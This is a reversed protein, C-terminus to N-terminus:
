TVATAAHSRASAPMSARAHPAVTGGHADPAAAAAETAATVYAHSNILWRRSGGGLSDILCYRAAASAGTVQSAAADPPGPEGATTASARPTRTMAPASFM